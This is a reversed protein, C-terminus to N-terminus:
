LLLVVFLKQNEQVVKSFVSILHVYSCVAFLFSFSICKPFMTEKQEQLRKYNCPCVCQEVWVCLTLLWVSQQRFTSDRKIHLVLTCFSVTHNKEPFTTGTKEKGQGESVRPRADTKRICVNGVCIHM